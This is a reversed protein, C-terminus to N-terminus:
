ARNRVFKVSSGRLVDERLGLRFVSVHLRPRVGRVLLDKILSHPRVNM